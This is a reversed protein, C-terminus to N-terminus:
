NEDFMCSLGFMIIKVTRLLCAFLGFLDVVWCLIIGTRLLYSYM